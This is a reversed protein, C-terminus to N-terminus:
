VSEGEALMSSMIQREWKTRGLRTELQNIEEPNVHLAKCLSYYVQFWFNQIQGDPHWQGVIEAAHMFHMLWHHPYEDHSETFEEVVSWDTYGMQHGMFDDGHRSDLEKPFAPNLIVFRFERVLKKASNEKSVGDPGRLALLLVSQMRIPLNFVWPKVVPISPEERMLDVSPVM